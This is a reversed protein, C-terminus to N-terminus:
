APATYDIGPLRTIRSGCRSSSLYKSQCCRNSLRFVLPKLMLSKQKLSYTRGLRRLENPPSDTSVTASPEMAKEACGLTSRESRLRGNGGTRHAYTRLQGSGSLVQPQRVGLGCGTGATAAYFHKIRRDRALHLDRGGGVARLTEAVPRAEGSGWAPWSFFGVLQLHASRPSEGPLAEM